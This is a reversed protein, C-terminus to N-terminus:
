MEGDVEVVGDDMVAITVGDKAYALFDKLYAKADDNLTGLWKDLGTIHCM